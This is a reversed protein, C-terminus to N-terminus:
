RPRGAAGAAARRSRSGRGGCRGLQDLLGVEVRDLAVARPRRDVLAAPRVQEVREADRVGARDRQVVVRLRERVVDAQVAVPDVEPRDVDQAVALAAHPAVVVEALRQALRPDLLELVEGVFGFHALLDAVDVVPVDVADVELDPQEGLRQRGAEAEAVGGEPDEDQHRRPPQLAVAEEGVVVRGLDVRGLAEVPDLAFVITSTSSRWWGSSAGASSPTSFANAGHFLSSRPTLTAAIKRAGRQELVRAEVRKHDDGVRELADEAAAAPLRPPSAPRVHVAPRDPQELPHPAAVLAARDPHADDAVARQQQELGGVHPGRAPPSATRREGGVGLRLALPHRAELGVRERDRATLQPALPATEGLGHQVRAARVPQAIPERRHRALLGPQHGALEGGLAASVEAPVSAAAGDLADRAPDHEAVGRSVVVGHGVQEGLQHVLAVAHGVRGGAAVGLKLDRM